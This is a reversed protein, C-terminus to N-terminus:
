SSRNRSLRFGPRTTSARGALLLGCAVMGAAIVGPFLGAGFRQGPIVPFGQVHWLVVAGLLAVLAGLVTDDIRM